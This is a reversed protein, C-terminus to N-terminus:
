EGQLRDLYQKLPKTTFSKLYDVNYTGDQKSPLAELAQALGENGTMRADDILVGFDGAEIGEPTDEIHGLTTESQPNEALGYLMDIVEGSDQEDAPDERADNFAKLKEKSALISAKKKDIETKISDVKSKAEDSFGLDKSDEALTNMRRTVNRLEDISKSEAVDNLIKDAVKETQLRTNSRSGVDYQAKNRLGFKNTKVNEDNISFEGIAPDGEIRDQESVRYRNADRTAKIDKGLIDAEGAAQESKVFEDAIEKDKLEAAKHRNLITARTKKNGLENYRTAGDAIVEDISAIQDPTLTGKSKIQELAAMKARNYFMANKVKDVDSKEDESLNMDEIVDDYDDDVTELIDLMGNVIEKKKEREQTLIAEEGDPAMEDLKSSLAEKALEADGYVKM